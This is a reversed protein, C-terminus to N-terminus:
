EHYGSTHIDSEGMPTGIALHRDSEGDIVFEGAEEYDM